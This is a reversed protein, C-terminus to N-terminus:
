ECVGDNNSDFCPNATGQWKLVSEGHGDFFVANTKGTTLRSPYRDIGPLLVEPQEPFSRSTGHYPYTPIKMRGANSVSGSASNSLEFPWTGGRRKPVPLGKIDLNAYWLDAIMWERSHNDIDEMSKPRDNRDLSAITDKLAQASGALNVHGFYQPPDTAQYPKLGEFESGQVSNVIYDAPAQYYWQQGVSDGTVDVRGASPCTAVKDTNEKSDGDGLYKALRGPLNIDAWAEGAPHNSKDFYEFTERYLLLHVPGPLSRRGDAVYMHVANGFQKLNSLCVASRAQERAISLSPLLIAILLAIIAVVVLVEILTFGTIRRGATGSVDAPFKPTAERRVM